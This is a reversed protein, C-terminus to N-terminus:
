RLRTLSTIYGTMEVCLEGITTLSSTGTLQIQVQNTSTSFGINIQSSSACPITTACRDYSDGTTTTFLTVNGSGDTQFTREASGAIAGLGGQYNGYTVKIRGGFYDATGVNILGTPSTSVTFPNVDRCYKKVVTGQQLSQFDSSAFDQLYQTSGGVGTPPSGVHIHSLDYSISTVTPSSANTPNFALIPGITTMTAPGSVTVNGIQASAIEKDLVIVRSFDTYNVWFDNLDIGQWLGGVTTNGTAYFFDTTSQAVGFQINAFIGAAYQGATMNAGDLFISKSAVGEISSDAFITAWDMAGNPQVWLGYKFSQSFNNINNIKIGVFKAGGGYVLKIAALPQTFGSNGVYAGSAYISDGIFTWDGGFQNQADNLYVGVNWPSVFKSAVVTPIIGQVVDLSDFWGWTSVNRLAGGNNTNFTIAAGGATMATSSVTQSNNVTWTTGSGGTIFTGNAVIATSSTVMEGIAVTGTVASVTLTTGSISGTFSAGLPGASYQNSFDVDEVTFGDSTILLATGTPTDWRIQSCAVPPTVNSAGFNSQGCGSLKGPSSATLLGNIYIVGKPLRILGGAALAANLASTNATAAASSNVVIGPVSCTLVGSGGPTTCDGSLAPLDTTRLLALGGFAGANNYQIQGNTGGPAGGSSVASWGTTTFVVEGQDSTYATTGVKISTSNPLTAFTFTGPLKVCNSVAVDSVSEGKPVGDCYDAKAFPAIALLFLALLLQRM